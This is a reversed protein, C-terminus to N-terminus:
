ELPSRLYFAKLERWNQCVRKEKQKFIIQALARASPSPKKLLFNKKLSDPLPYFDELDSLCVPKKGAQAKMKKFYDQLKLLSVEGEIDELSHFKAFYVHSKFGNLAVFVPQASALFAEACIRLSNVPYVPIDLAFSLSRIASIAVRVGTWRGPGAGVALFQLDSLRAGATKLAQDIELPIRDSHASEFPQHTWKKFAREKLNKKNFESLALSGKNSSCELSLFLCM